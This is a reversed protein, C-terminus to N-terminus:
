GSMTPRRLAHFQDACALGVLILAAVAVARGAGADYDGLRTEGAWSWTGPAVLLWAAVVLAPIRHREARRPGARPLAALDVTTALRSGEQATRPRTRRAFLDSAIVVSLAIATGAVIVRPALPGPLTLTEVMAILGPLTAVVAWDRDLAIAVIVGAAILSAAPQAGPLAAVAIAFLGFAAAPRVAAIGIAAAGVLLPVWLDGVSSASVVGALLGVVLLPKLAPVGVSGGAGALALLAGGAVMPTGFAPGTATLVHGTQDAAVVAAGLLATGVGALAVARLRAARHRGGATVGLGAVLVLVAVLPRADEGSAAVAVAIPLLLMGALAAALTDARSPASSGGLLATGAAAAAGAPSLSITLGFGEVVGGGAAALMIWFAVVAGGLAVWPWPM